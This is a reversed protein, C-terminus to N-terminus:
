VALLETLRPKNFGVVIQGDIEVVPVGMQGSKEIMDQAAAQDAAVNVESYKVGHDTLFEKTAGCFHCTPTTYITVNKATKPNSKSDTSM